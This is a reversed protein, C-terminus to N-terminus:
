PPLSDSKRDYCILVAYPRVEWTDEMCAKSEWDPGSYSAERPDHNSGMLGLIIAVVVLVISLFIPDAGLRMDM